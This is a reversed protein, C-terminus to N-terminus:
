RGSSPGRSRELFAKLKRAADRGAAEVALLRADPGPVDITYEDRFEDEASAQPTARAEGKGSGDFVVVEGLCLSARM